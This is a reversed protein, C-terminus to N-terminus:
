RTSIIDCRVANVLEALTQSRVMIGADPEGSSMTVLDERFVTNDMFFQQAKGLLQIPSVAGVTLGWQSAIAEPPILAVRRGQTLQRVRKIKLIKDGPILMVYLQQQEDQGLMCKLIQSLRVKRERAADACTYVAQRHPKIQYEIQASDLFTTVATPM